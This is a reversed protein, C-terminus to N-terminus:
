REGDVCVAIVVVDQYQFRALSRWFENVRRARTELDVGAHLAVTARAAVMATSILPGIGPVTMPRRCNAETRSIEEIERTITDVRKDLWLWDDYLGIILQRM